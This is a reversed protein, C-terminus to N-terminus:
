WRYRQEAEPVWWDALNAFVWLTNIEVDRFRSHLAVLEDRWYLFCYPQDAYIQAQLERWCRNAEGADTTALGQEILEDVRPSSYSPYNYPAGTKWRSSPDVFLSAGLGALAAQFERRKLKEYFANGEVTELRVDVGAGRLQEQLIVQAQERRVNGANTELTFSFRQGDRDLWGDGDTDRWGAEAFLAAARSLDHPIPQIDENQTGCLEPTITGTARAGYTQGGGTLLALTLTQVDVAHALAQRVRVDAFREDQLNWVLFDAFRKGRRYVTIEPHDRQLPEVDEVQLGQLMDIRGAKLELLRTAYEPLVRIIVGDLYPPHVVTSAEDRQLVLEHNREWRAVRFLGATVPSTSSPAGRLNGRPWDRLVHEPVLAYGGASTLMTDRDFRHDFHVVVTHDDIKQVPDEARLHALAPAAPSGVAPDRMLGLSFVVDDATVPQGDSWKVDDRLHFTLALGDDSWTWREALHPHYVCRCEFTPMVLLPFLFDLIQGSLGSNTVVPNLVDADAQYGVVLTDGRVPSGATTEGSAADAVPTPDAPAGGGDRRCGPATALAAAVVLALAFRPGTVGAGRIM